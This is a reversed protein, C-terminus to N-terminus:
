PWSLFIRFSSDTDAKYPICFTHEDYEAGAEVVDRTTGAIDTVIARQTGSWCNLLSSKGVNPRGVLAVQLGQQLLQGQRATALASGVRSQVDRLQAAVAPVDLPPLDEDFDIRAEVEAVLALTESRLASVAEGM